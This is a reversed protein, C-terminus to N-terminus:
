VRGSRIDSPLREFFVALAKRCDDPADQLYALVQNALNRCRRCTQLHKLETEPTDLAHELCDLCWFRDNLKVFIDKGLELPKGCRTCTPM